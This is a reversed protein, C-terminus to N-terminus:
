MDNTLFPILKVRTKKIDVYTVIKAHHTILKEKNEEKTFTVYQERYAMQGM